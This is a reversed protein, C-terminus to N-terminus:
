LDIEPKKPRAIAGGTTRVALGFGELTQFVAEREAKRGERSKLGHKALNMAAQAAIFFDERRTSLYWPPISSDLQDATLWGRSQRPMLSNLDAATRALASCAQAPSERGSIRSAGSLERVARETAGNHQPTHPLNPLATVMHHMLWERVSLSRYQSGNDIQWVLPLKGSSRLSELLFITDQTNGPRGAAVAEIRMTARDKALDAHVRNKRFADQGLVAGRALVHLSTRRTAAEHRIRDRRRRKLARLSQQVLMVPADPLLRCMAPWGTSFGLRGLLRRVRILTRLRIDRGHPPRGLPKM